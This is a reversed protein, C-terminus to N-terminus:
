SATAYHANGHRVADAYNMRADGWEIHEPNICWANGCRHLAMSSRGPFLTPGHRWECILRHLDHDKGNWTVKAYHRGRMSGTFRLCAGASEARHELYWSVLEGLSM